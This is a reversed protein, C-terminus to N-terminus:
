LAEDQRLIIYTLWSFGFAVINSGAIVVLCFRILERFGWIRELYRCALPLTVASFLLQRGVDM